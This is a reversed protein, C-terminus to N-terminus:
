PALLKDIAESLREDTVVGILREAVLGDPGIVFTEPFAYVRYARSIRGHVDPGNPYTVGYRAIFRQANAPLDKANVGVFVVGDGGYKRWVRELAPAEEQCPACWSAWFNLVVVRGQLEELTITGGDYLGLRFGPASGGELPSQSLLGTGLLVLVVSLCIIVMTWRPALRRIAGTEEVAM